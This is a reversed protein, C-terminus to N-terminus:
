EMCLNEARCEAQEGAPANCAEEDIATLCEALKERSLGGSCISLEDRAENRYAFECEGSSLYTQNPGIRGCELQSQCWARSLQDAGEFQLIVRGGEPVTVPEGEVVEVETSAGPATGSAPTMTGSAPQMAPEETWEAEIGFEEEEQAPPSVAVKTPVSHGRPETKYETAASRAPESQQDKECGLLSGVLLSAVLITTKHM